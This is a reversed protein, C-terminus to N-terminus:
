DDKKNSITLLLQCRPTHHVRTIEASSEIACLLLLVCWIWVDCQEDQLLCQRSAAFVWCFKLEFFSAAWSPMKFTEAFASVQCVGSRWTKLKVKAERPVKEAASTCFCAWLLWRPLSNKTPIKRGFRLPTMVMGNGITLTRCALIVRIGSGQGVFSTSNFIIRIQHSFYWCFICIIDLPFFCNVSSALYSKSKSWFFQIM